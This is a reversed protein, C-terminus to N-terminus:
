PMAWEIGRDAVMKEDTHSSCFLADLSGPSIRESDDSGESGESDESGRHSVIRQQAMLPQRRMFVM